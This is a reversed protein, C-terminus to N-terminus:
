RLTALYAVVDEIQQATLIPKGRWAAGVQNLGDIRYYSPMITNPNLRTSDVIRLRLQGASLRAGTGDLAPALNGMFRAGSAPVAHCLFCNADRGTVLGLGRAPDGPETTLPAPIADGAVPHPTLSESATVACGAVVGCIALGAFRRVLGATM